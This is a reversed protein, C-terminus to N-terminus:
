KNYVHFSVVLDHKNLYDNMNDIAVIYNSHDKALEFVTKSGIFGAAGTVLIRM